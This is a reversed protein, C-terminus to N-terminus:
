TGTNGITLSSSVYNNQLVSPKNLSGTFFSPGQLANALEKPKISEPTHRGSENESGSQHGSDTDSPSESLKDVIKLDIPPKDEPDSWDSDSIASLGSEESSSVQSATARKQLACQLRSDPALGQRISDIFKDISNLKEELQAIEDQLYVKKAEETEDKENEKIKIKIEELVQMKMKLKTNMSQYKKIQEVEKKLSEDLKVLETKAKKLKRTIRSLLKEKEKTETDCSVSKAELKLYREQCKSINSRLRNAKIYIDKMSLIIDLQSKLNGREGVMVDKIKKLINSSAESEDLSIITNKEKLDSLQNNIDSEWTDLLSENIEKVSLESKQKRQPNAKRQKLEDVMNVPIPILNPKSHESLDTDEGATPNIQESSEKKEPGPPLPPPPPVSGSPPFPFPSPPVGLVSPDTPLLSTPSSAIASQETTFSLPPTGDTDVVIHTPLNEYISEGTVSGHESYQSEGNDWESESWGDDIEEYIHNSPDSYVSSPTSASKSKIDDWWKKGVNLNSEIVLKNKAAKKLNDEFYNSKKIPTAYKNFTLLCLTSLAQSFAEGRDLSPLDKRDKLDRLDNVAEALAASSGYGNKINIKTKRFLSLFLNLLNYFLSSKAHEISEPLLYKVVADVGYKDIALTIMESLIFYNKEVLCVEGSANFKYLSNFDFKKIFFITKRPSLSEIKNFFDVCCDHLFYYDPNFDEILKMRKKFKGSLDLYKSGM